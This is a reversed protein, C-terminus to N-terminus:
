HGHIKCGDENAVTNGGKEFAKKWEQACHQFIRYFTENKLMVLLILYKQHNELVTRPGFSLKTM